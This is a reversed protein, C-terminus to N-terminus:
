PHSQLLERAVRPCWSLDEPHLLLDPEGGCGDLLSRPTAPQPDCCHITGGNALYKVIAQNLIEHTLTHTKMIIAEQLLSGNQISSGNIRRSGEHFRPRRTTLGAAMFHILVLLAIM